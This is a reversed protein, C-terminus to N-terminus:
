IPHLGQISGSAHRIGKLGLIRVSELGKKRDREYKEMKESIQTIEKVNVSGDHCNQKAKREKGKRTM